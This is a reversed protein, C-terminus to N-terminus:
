KRGSSDDRVMLRAGTSDADIKVVERGSEDRIRLRAGASDAHLELVTDGSDNDIRILARGQGHAHHASDFAVLENRGSRWEELLRIPLFFARVTGGPEFRVEGFLSLSDALSDAATACHFSPPGDHARGPVTLLCGSPLQEPGSSDNLAVRLGLGSIRQPADRRIEVEKIRGLREGDVQFPMIALPIRIPDSSSALASVKKVGSNYISIGTMGVAFVALAGVAIRLWYRQM